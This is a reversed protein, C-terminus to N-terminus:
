QLGNKLYKYDKWNLEKILEKVQIPFDEYAEYNRKRSPNVKRRIIKESVKVNDIGFHKLVKTLYSVCSTMRNFDILLINSDKELITYFANHCFNIDKIKQILRETTKEERKGNSFSLIVDKYDRYIIGKQIVELNFFSYKLLGNVEGYYDRYFRQQQWEPIEMNYIERETTIIGPVIYDKINPQHRVKWLKSLNMVWSLFRTGTRGQSTILFNNM